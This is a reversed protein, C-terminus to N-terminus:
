RTQSQIVRSGDATSISVWAASGFTPLYRLTANRRLKCVPHSVPSSGAVGLDVFIEIAAQRVGFFGFNESTTVINGRTPLIELGKMGGCQEAIFQPLAARGSPLRGAGSNAINFLTSLPTRQRALNAV